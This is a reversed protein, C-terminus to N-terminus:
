CLVYKCMRVHLIGDELFELSKLQEEDRELISKGDTLDDFDAPSRVVSYGFKKYFGRKDSQSHLYLFVSKGFKRGQSIAYEEGAELLTRGLGHKRYSRVVAIRGVKLILKEPHGRVEYPFIRMTAVPVVVAAATGGEQPEEDRRKTVLIHQAYEDIEDMECDPDVGQEEVFVELRIQRCLEFLPHGKSEVHITSFSM